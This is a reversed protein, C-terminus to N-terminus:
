PLVVPLRRHLTIAEPTAKAGMALVLVGHDVAERLARGYVPDIEDAPQVERVDGRQVCFVVAARYGRDVMYMLERLHKQARVSVADPFLAIGDSVAATVNKVEVFCDAADGHELLLDIRSSERGYAVERRIRGYGGLPPLRGQEVAEEVLRNALGTHIGVLTDGSEVLEWSLPYKRKPNGTDLLWVRSGPDRCGMMSGTNPTHATVVRGDELEVDALFRKYRRILRGPILTKSFRM